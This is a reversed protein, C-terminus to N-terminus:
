EPVCDTGSKPFFYLDKKLKNDHWPTAINVMQKLTKRGKREKVLKMEYVEKKSGVEIMKKAIQEMMKQFSEKCACTNFVAVIAQVFWSGRITHRYSVFGPSTAIALYYDENSEVTATQVEEDVGGDVQLYERRTGQCAQIFFLKPKDKLKPCKDSGFYDIIDTIDVFEGDRGKVSGEKGHSLIFLIFCDHTEDSNNIEQSYSKLKEHIESAKLDEKKGERVDFKLDKFLASVAEADIDTGKRYNSSTDPYFHNNIILCIGRKEKKMPYVDGTRMKDKVFEIDCGTVGDVDCPLFDDPDIEEYEDAYGPELRSLANSCKSTYLVKLFKSYGREGSNLLIKLMKRTASKKSGVLGMEARKIQKVDDDSIAKYSYLSNMVDSYSNKIENTLFTKNGRITNYMDDPLRGKGVTHKGDKTENDSELRGVTESYGNENLVAIFKGYAHDGSYLLIDLLKAAANSKCGFAHQEERAIAELDNDNFVGKEFLSSALGVHDDKIDPILNVFDAMITDYQDDPLKGKVCPM